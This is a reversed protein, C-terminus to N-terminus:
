ASPGVTQQVRKRTGLYILAGATVLIAAPWVFFGGSVPVVMWAIVAILITAVNLLKTDRTNRAYLVAALAVLFPVVGTFAFDTASTFGFRTQWVVIGYFLYIDFLVLHGRALQSLVKRRRVYRNRLFPLAGLSWAWVLVVVGVAFGVAFALIWATADWGYPIGATVLGVYLAAFSSSALWTSNERIGLVAGFATVAVLAAVHSELYLYREWRALLLVVIADFVAVGLLGRSLDIKSPDRWTMAALGSLAALSVSGLALRQGMSLYAVAIFAVLVALLLLGAGLLRRRVDRSLGETRESEIRAVIADYQERNIVGAELSAKLANREDGAV